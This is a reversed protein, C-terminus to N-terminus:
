LKQYYRAFTQGCIFKILCNVNTQLALSKSQTVNYIQGYISEEMMDKPKTCDAGMMAAKHVVCFPSIKIADM